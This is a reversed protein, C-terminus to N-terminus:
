VHEGWFARKERPVMIRNVSSADGTVIFQRGTPFDVQVQVTQASRKLVIGHYGAAEGTRIEVFDGIRVQCKPAPKHDGIMRQVEVNPITVARVFMGEDNCITSMESIGRIRILKRVLANSTSRAFIYGFKLEGDAGLPAFIQAPKKKFVHKGQDRLLPSIQDMRHASSIELMCWPMDKLMEVRGFSLLPSDDAPPADFHRTKIRKLRAQYSKSLGVGTLSAHLTLNRLYAGVAVAKVDTSALLAAIAPRFVKRIAPVPAGATGAVVTYSRSAAYAVILATLSGFPTIELNAKSIIPRLVSMPPNDGLLIFAGITQEILRLAQWVRTQIFGHTKGVFNQSKHLRYYEIAIEQFEPRLPALLTLFKEPHDTAFTSFDLLSSHEPIAEASLLGSEPSLQAPTERKRRNFDEFSAANSVYDM